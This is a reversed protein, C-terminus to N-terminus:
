TIRPSLGSVRWSGGVSGRIREYISGRIICGTIFLARQRRQFRRSLTGELGLLCLPRPTDLSLPTPDVGASLVRGDPLHVAVSQYQRSIRMPATPIFTLDVPRLNARWLLTPTLLIGSGLGSAKWSFFRAMPCCSANVNARALNMTLTATRWNTGPGPAAHRTGMLYQM